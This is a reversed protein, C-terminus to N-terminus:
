FIAGFITKYRKEQIQDTQYINPQPQQRDDSRNLNINHQYRQM